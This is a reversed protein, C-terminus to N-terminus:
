EYIAVDYTGDSRMWGRYMRGNNFPMAWHGQTDIAILGGQGGLEGLASLAQQCAQELSLNGYRMRAAVDHALVSRIFYEGHGTASVACSQNDAYTGCGILPSDGVRGFRKNTMGGTSTAAAVNGFFDLAVAGVTGLKGDPELPLNHDLETTQYDRIQLLQQWRYESYFYDPEAFEIQQERAFQEAGVGSLLVHPSHELVKRALIIPNRIQSVGAIAGAQRSLGDMIAADMEHTGQHTFVSGKGANFVECDELVCVAAQVADLASGSHNLVHMGADLAQKLGDEALAEREPSLQAKFLTGAGGHVLLTAIPHNTM